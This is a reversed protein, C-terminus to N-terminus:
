NNFTCNNIIYKCGEGIVDNHYSGDRREVSISKYEYGNMNM